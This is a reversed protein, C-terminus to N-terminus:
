PAQVAIYMTCNQLSSTETMYVIESTVDKVMIYQM